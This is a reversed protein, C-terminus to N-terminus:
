RASGSDKAAQCGVKYGQSKRMAKMESDKDSLSQAERADGKASDKEGQSSRTRQHTLHLALGYQM